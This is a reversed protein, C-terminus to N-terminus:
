SRGAATRRVTCTASSYGAPDAGVAAAHGSRTARVDEAITHGGIRWEFVVVGRLTYRETSSRALVFDWGAQREVASGRGVAILGSEGGRGFYHWHGTPGRYEVVFQMYMQQQADGTGPMSGRIGIEDPHATPDCADITSWLLPSSPRPLPTAAFAVAQTAVLAGPLAVVAARNRRRVLGVIAAGAADASACSRSATSYIDM